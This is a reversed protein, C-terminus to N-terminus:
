QELLKITKVKSLAQNVLGQALVLNIMNHVTAREELAYLRAKIDLLEAEIAALEQASVVAQEQDVGHACRHGTHGVPRGTGHGNM